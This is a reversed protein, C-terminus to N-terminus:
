SSTLDTHARKLSMARLPTLWSATIRKANTALAGGKFLSNEALCRLWWALGLKEINFMMGGVTHLPNSLQFGRRLRSRGAGPVPSITSASVREGIPPEVVGYADVGFLWPRRTDLDVPFVRAIPKLLKGAGAKSILYGRTSAPVRSFRVLTRGGSLEALPRYARRRATCMHIFDWGEPASALVEDLVNAFDLDVSADDELVLAYPLDSEVIHKWAMLHSAYCGVEGLKLGSPPFLHKIEKPLERGEVAKIRVAELKAWGLNAELAARRAVDRDRNIYLVKAPRAETVTRM